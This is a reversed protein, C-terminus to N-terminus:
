ASGTKAFKSVNQTEGASLFSPDTVHLYVQRIGGWQVL